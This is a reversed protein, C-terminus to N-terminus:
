KLMKSIFSNFGRYKQTMKVWCLENDGKCNITLIIAASTGVGPIRIAKMGIKGTDVSNYTEVISDTALQIKMDSEDNIFIQTLSFVKDCELKERCRVSANSEADALDIKLRRIRELRDAKERQDAEQRKLLDALKKQQDAEQM